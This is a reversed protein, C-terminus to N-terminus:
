QIGEKQTGKFSEASGEAETKKKANLMVRAADAHPSGPHHELFEQLVQRAAAVRGARALSLGWLFRARERFRPSRASSRYSKAAYEHDGLARHVEGRLFAVEPQRVSAPFSAKYEQLDAQAAEPRGVELQLRVVDLWAIETLEGSPWRRIQIKLRAIADTIRGAARLRQAARFAAVEDLPPGMEAAADFLAVAEDVDAVAKARSLTEAQVVAPDPPPPTRPPATPTPPGARRPKTEAAQAPRASSEKATSPSADATPDHPPPTVPLKPSSSDFSEGSNLTASGSPGDVRVRGEEVHVRVVDVALREVRFRTGLVTVTWPGIRIVLPREPGRPRARVTVTGAALLWSDPSATQLQGDEALRFTDGAQSELEVMGEAGTHLALPRSLAQGREIRETGAWAPGQVQRVRLEPDAGRSFVVLLAVAAVLRIGWGLSSSTNSRPAHLRRWVREASGPLPEPDHDRLLEAVGPPADGETWRKM